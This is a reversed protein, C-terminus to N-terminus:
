LDIRFFGECFSCLTQLVSRVARDGGTLLVLTAKANPNKYYRYTFPKGNGLTVTQAPYKRRFDELNMSEEQFAYKAQM